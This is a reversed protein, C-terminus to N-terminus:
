TVDLTRDFIADVEHQLDGLHNAREFAAGALQKRGQAEYARAERRWFEVLAALEKRNIEVSIRSPM